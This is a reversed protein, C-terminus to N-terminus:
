AIIRFQAMMALSSHDLFHCHFPYIGTHRSDFTVLIRVTSGPPVAVTDKPYSEWQPARVGDRDLVRFQVLHLHLSHPIQPLTDLNTIEWLETTGRKVTFDIRQPDYPEGNILFGTLPDFSLLVKRTM